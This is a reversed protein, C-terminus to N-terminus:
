RAAPQWQEGLPLTSSYALAALLLKLVDVLKHAHKSSKVLCAGGLLSHSGWCCCLTILFMDEGNVVAANTVQQRCNICPADSLIATLRVAVIPTNHYCHIATYGTPISTVYDAAAANFTLM